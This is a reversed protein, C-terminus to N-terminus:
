GPRYRRVTREALGTAAALSATSTHGAALADRVVAASQGATRRGQGNGAAQVPRRPSRPRRATASRRRTMAIGTEAAVVFAVAPWGSVIAGPWGHPLGYAVNAALTAVVALVLGTRALWPSTIGARASRLLVLSSVAVLGDVSVPLMYAAAPPQGYRLAIAAVHLYSVAAAIAAVLLVAATTAARYADAQGRPAADHAHGGTGPRLSRLRAAVSRLSM